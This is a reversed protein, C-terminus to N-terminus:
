FFTLSGRRLEGKLFCFLGWGRRALEIFSESFCGCRRGCEGPVADDLVGPFGPMWVGARSKSFEELELSYVRECGARRSLWCWRRRRRECKMYIYVYLINGDNLKSPSTCM